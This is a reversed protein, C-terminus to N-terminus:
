VFTVTDSTDLPLKKFLAKGARRRFRLSLVFWVQFCQWSFFPGHWKNEKMPIVSENFKELASRRQLWSHSTFCTKNRDRLAKESGGPKRQNCITPSLPLLPFDERLSVFAPWSTAAGGCEWVHVQTGFSGVAADSTLFFSRQAWPLILFTVMWGPLSLSFNYSCTM